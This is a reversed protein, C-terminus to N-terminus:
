KSWRNSVLSSINEYTVLLIGSVAFIRWIHGIPHWVSRINKMHSWYFALCQSCEGYIVGIPHWVSRVNKWIHGCFSALCQSCEGYIVGIPHWVSLASEMHSWYSALCQSCEGYTVWLIGSVSFM